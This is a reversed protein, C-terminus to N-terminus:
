SITQCAQGHDKRWDYDPHIYKSESNWYGLDLIDFEDDLKGYTKYYEHLNFLKIGALHIISEPDDSDLEFKTPFGCSNITINGHSSRVIM